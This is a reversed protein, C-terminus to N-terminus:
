DRKGFRLVLGTSLRPDHRTGGFAPITQELRTTLYDAQLLRVAISQNIKLDVGGGLAMTFANQNGEIIPIGQGIGGISEQTTIATLPSNIIAVLVRPPNNSVGFLAHAFPALRESKRYTFRPGFLVTHTRHPAAFIELRGYHGSADAVVGLWQNVNVALSANWGHTNIRDLNTADRKIYSYGGFVEVQPTDQAMAKLSCGFFSLALFLFTKTRASFKHFPM